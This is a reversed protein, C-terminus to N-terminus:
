LQRVKQSYFSASEQGRACERAFTILHHSVLSVHIMNEIKGAKLKPVAMKWFTKRYNSLVGV